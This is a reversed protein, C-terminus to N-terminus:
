YINLIVIEPPNFLRARTGAEGLGSSIFLKTEGFTFWGKDFYRGLETFSKALAGYFPLRIQGGHTHASLVLDVGSKMAKYIVDPNNTLLIKLENRAANRFALAVNEEHSVYEKTGSLYIERGRIKIREGTNELLRINQEALYKKIAAIKEPMLFFEERDAGYGSDHNGLVAFTPIKQAMAGLPYLYKTQEATSDVLDGAILILDPNEEEIKKVVRKFFPDKKYLGSHSDSILAIKIPENSGNKLNVTERKVVILRPEIFSGYAVTLFVTALIILGLGSFIPWKALRGKKKIFADRLVIYFLIASVILAEAILPDYIWKFINANM